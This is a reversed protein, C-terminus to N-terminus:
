LFRKINKSMKPEKLLRVIAQSVNSYIMNLSILIPYVQLATRCTKAMIM